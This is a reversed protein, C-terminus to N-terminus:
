SCIFHVECSMAFQSLSLSLSLSLSCLGFVCFRKATFTDLAAKKSVTARGKRERSPRQRWAKKEKGKVILSYAPGRGAVFYRKRTRRRQVPDAIFIPPPPPPPSHTLVFGLISISNTHVCACQLWTFVIIHFDHSTRVFPSSVRHVRVHGDKASWLRSRLSNEEVTQVRALTQESFPLVPTWWGNRAFVLSLWIRLVTFGTCLSGGGGTCIFVTTQPLHDRNAPKM